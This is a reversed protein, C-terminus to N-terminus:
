APGATVFALAHERMAPARRLFSWVPSRELYAQYAERTATWNAAQEYSWGLLYCADGTPPLEPSSCADSLGATDDRAALLLADLTRQWHRREAATFRANLPEQGLADASVRVAAAAGQTDMLALRVEALDRYM